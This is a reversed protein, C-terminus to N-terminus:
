GSILIRGAALALAAPPIALLVWWGTALALVLLYGVTSLVLLGGVVRAGTAGGLARPLGPLTRRKGLARRWVIALAFVALAPLALLLGGLVAVALVEPVAFAFPLLAFPEAATVIALGRPFPPVTHHFPTALRAKLRAWRSGPPGEGM